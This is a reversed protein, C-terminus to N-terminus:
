RPQPKRRLYVRVCVGLFFAFYRLLLTPRRGGSARFTLLQRLFAFPSIALVGAAVVEEHDDGEHVLRTFLTTTDRWPHFRRLVDPVHKEGDLRFREGSGDKFWVSYIMRRRSPDGAYVFQGFTGREVRQTGGVIGGTVTGRVNAPHDPDVLFRKLGDVEITFRVSLRNRQVRGVQEGAIPDSEGVGVFGGITETFTLATSDPPPPSAARLPIGNDSCWQRATRVGYEVAEHLTDASFVFLYHM